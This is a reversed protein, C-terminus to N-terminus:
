HSSAHRVWHLTARARQRHVSGASKSRMKVPIVPLIFCWRQPKFSLQVESAPHKPAKNSNKQKTEKICPRHLLSKIVFGGNQGKWVDSRQSSRRLEDTMRPASSCPGASRSQGSDQGNGCTRPHQGSPLSSPAWKHPRARWGDSRKGNGWWERWWRNAPQNFFSFSVEIHSHLISYTTHFIILLYLCCTQLSILICCPQYILRPKSTKM